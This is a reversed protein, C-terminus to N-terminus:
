TRNENQESKHNRESIMISVSTTLKDCMANEVLLMGTAM